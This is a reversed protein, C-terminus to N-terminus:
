TPEDSVGWVDFIIQMDRITADGIVISPVLVRARTARSISVLDKRLDIM